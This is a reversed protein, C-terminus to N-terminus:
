GCYLSTYIKFKQQLGVNADSQYDSYLTKDKCPNLGQFRNQGPPHYHHSIILPNTTSPPQLAIERSFPAAKARTMVTM